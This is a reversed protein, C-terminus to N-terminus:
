PKVEVRIDDELQLSRGSRLSSAARKESSFIGGM